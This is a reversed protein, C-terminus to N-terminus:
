FYQCAECLQTNTFFFSFNITARYLASIRTPKEQEGRLRGSLGFVEGEVRRVVQDFCLPFVAWGDTTSM